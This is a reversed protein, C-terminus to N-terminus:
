SYHDEFIKEKNNWSTTKLLMYLESDYSYKDILSPDACTINPLNLSADCKALVIQLEVPNESGEIQTL